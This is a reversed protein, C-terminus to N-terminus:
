LKPLVPPKPKVIKKPAAPKRQEPAFLVRKRPTNNAPNNNRPPPPPPPVFSQKIKLGIGHQLERQAMVAWPTGPAEDIVRQLLAMAKTANKKQNGAFNLEQSPSINWRNSRKAVDEAALENKLFALAANYEMNRIKQSMLRGYALCFNARWRMSPERDLEAEIGGPFAAGIMDINLQSQAATKQAEGAVTKFNQPTVAFNM